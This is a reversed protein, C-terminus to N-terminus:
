NGWVNDWNGSPPLSAAAAKPGPGGEIFGQHHSGGPGPLPLGDPGVQNLKRPKSKIGLLRLVFRALEGYLM